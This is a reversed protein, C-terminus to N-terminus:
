GAAPKIKLVFVHQCPAVSPLAVALGDPGSTWELPENAGLLAVSAIKPESSTALSHITLRGGTPWALLLAYIAGDKGVTFRMDGPVYGKSPVDRAGGFRNKEQPGASSPGEGYTRWPRTGFIAEGNISMWAAMEGLSKEVQPELAGDPRLVVNILLNGNKSVIDTLMQLIQTTSKYTEGKRYFWDGISTDTQWPQAAAGEKVGREIDRVWGTPAPDQKCNYVATLQGNRALNSNYFHAVLKLGVDGYQEFPMGSDSYLLEPHYKDVLDTIRKSWMEQNAPDKTLWGTDDPATRPHYLDEYQPDNGDYPVGKLPGDVDAGRSVQFWTFSAGLHESVGFPLNYKKAARQWEGVVDRHPGNKVANWRPQYTSDWLDFNDHHVGMSVFYKAGAKVYLAMLRDPDWKEAKWLPIIDKYGVKSPHGYKAVQLLYARDPKSNLIYNPLGKDRVQRNLYLRRAYWDGDEPVAQPGWHAWIGFKADRFWEPARYQKLSEETPKYPGDEAALCLPSLALAALVAPTISKWNM